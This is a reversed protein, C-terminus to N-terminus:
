KGFGKVFLVKFDLFNPIVFGSLITKIEPIGSGAAMYMSKGSAVPQPPGSYQNKDGTGPAATPLSRKTFMTASSSIIGFALAFAVYIAFSPAYGTSWEKFASCDTGIESRAGLLPTKDRCCAERNLIPNRTCYGLKWDSVTAEAIDVLFAVCATLCGIIAAAIWGSAEDFLSVLKYRLGKRNHIFRLRYSDKVQTGDTLAMTWWVAM